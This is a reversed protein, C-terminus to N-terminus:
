MNHKTMREQFIHDILQRLQNELEPTPAQDFSQCLDPHHKKIFQITAGTAHSQIAEPIRKLYEPNILTILKEDISM